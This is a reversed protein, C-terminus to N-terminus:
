RKRRRRHRPRRTNVSKYRTRLAELLFPDIGGGCMRYKPGKDGRMRRPRSYVIM